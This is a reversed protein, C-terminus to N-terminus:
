EAKFEMKDGEATSLILFQNSVESLTMKELTQFFQTEAALDPCARKTSLIPGTKFWPYPVDQTASYSNCPAQGSIRGEEPFTITARATFPAGNISQLVFIKGEAGYGTLTEDTCYGLILPLLLAAYKM